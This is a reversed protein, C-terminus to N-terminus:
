GAGKQRLFRGLEQDTSLIHESWWDRLFNMTVITLCEDGAQLKRQLAISTKLFAKHEDRHQRLEDGFYGYFHMLSKETSFHYVTYDLLEEYIEAIVERGRGACMAEHLKNITDILIKHQDDIAQIGVSFGDTWTILQPM